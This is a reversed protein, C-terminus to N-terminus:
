RVYLVCVCMCKNILSVVNHYQIIWNYQTLMKHSLGPFFINILTNSRLSFQYIIIFKYFIGHDALFNSFYLQVNLYAINLMGCEFQLLYFSKM